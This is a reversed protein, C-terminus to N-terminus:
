WRARENRDFAALAHQLEPEKETIEELTGTM